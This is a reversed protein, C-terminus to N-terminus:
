CTSGKTAVRSGGRFWGASGGWVEPRGKSILAVSAIVPSCSLWVRREEGGISVFHQKYDLICLASFDHEEFDVDVASLPALREPIDEAGAIGKGELVLMAWRRGDLPSPLGSKVVRTYENTAVYIAEETTLLEKETSGFLQV